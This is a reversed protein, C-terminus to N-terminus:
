KKEKSNSKENENPNAIQGQPPSNARVVRDFPLTSLAPRRLFIPLQAMTNFFHSQNNQTTRM